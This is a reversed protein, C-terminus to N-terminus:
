SVRRVLRLGRNAAWIGPTLSGLRDVKAYRSGNNWCNGRGVYFSVWMSGSM